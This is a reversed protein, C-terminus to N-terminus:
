QDRRPNYRIGSSDELEDEDRDHKYKPIDPKNQKRLIAIEKKREAEDIVRKGHVVSPDDGDYEHLGRTNKLTKLMHHDHKAKGHRVVTSEKAGTQMAHVPHM